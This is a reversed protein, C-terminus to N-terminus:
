SMVPYKSKMLWALSSLSSRRLCIGSGVTFHTAEKRVCLCAATQRSPFLPCIFGTIFPMG